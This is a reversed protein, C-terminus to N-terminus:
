RWHTINQTADVIIRVDTAKLNYIFHIQLIGDMADALDKM